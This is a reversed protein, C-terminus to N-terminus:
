YAPAHQPRPLGRRLPHGDLERGEVPLDRPSPQARPVARGRRVREAATRRQIDRGVERTPSSASARRSGAPRGPAPGRGQRAEHQPHRVDAPRRDPRRARVRHGPTRGQQAPRRLSLGAPGSGVVAVQKGTRVAPPEPVMWGEALGPRHDRVRHKKITVPTTTSALTCSGECPAPCVRGTFEPFNNTKHLRDYAERWLGRYVLDNWEPILNNIPCGSAMGNIM